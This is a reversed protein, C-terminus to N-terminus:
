FGCVNGEYVLSQLRFSFFLLDASSEGGLVGLIDTVLTVLLACGLWKIVIITSSTQTFIFLLSVLIIKLYSSGAKPM